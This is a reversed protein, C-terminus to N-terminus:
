LLYFLSVAIAFQAIYYLAHNTIVFFPTNFGEAFYTNNLILDSAMFLVLAIAMIVIPPYQFGTQIAASFYIATTFFLASGYLIVWPRMKGYRIATFKDMIGTGVTLIVAIIVPIIIYLINASFDFYNLFLGLLYFAHGFAFAFFGLITFLLEKEKVIFKLDLFVDGFLGMVLGCVIFIPFTGTPPIPATLWAVLATIVFALSVFGKIIVAIVRRETARYFLFVSLLVVGISLPILWFLM